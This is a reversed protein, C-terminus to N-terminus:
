EIARISAWDYGNGSRLRQGITVTAQHYVRAGAIVTKSPHRDGMRGPEFENRSM